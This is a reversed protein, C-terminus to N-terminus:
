QRQSANRPEGVREIANPTGRRLDHTGARRGMALSSARGVLRRNGALGSALLIATDNTSQHGDVTLKNLSEGVAGKLARALMSVILEDDDVAFIRGRIKM